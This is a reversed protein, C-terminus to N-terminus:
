DSPLIGPDGDHVAESVPNGRRRKHPSPTQFPTVDEHLSKLASPATAKFGGASTRKRARSRTQIDASRTNVMAATTATAAATPPKL